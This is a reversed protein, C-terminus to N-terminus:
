FTAPTLGVPAAAATGDSQWRACEERNFKRLATPASSSPVSPVGAIPHVRAKWRIAQARSAVNPQEGFFDVGRGGLLETFEQLSQGM